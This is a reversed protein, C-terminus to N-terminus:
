VSTSSHPTTVLMQTIALATSMLVKRGSHLTTTLGSRTADPSLSSPSAARSTMADRPIVTRPRQVTNWMVSSLYPLHSTQLNQLWEPSSQIQVASFRGTFGLSVHALYRGPQQSFQEKASTEPSTHLRVPSPM